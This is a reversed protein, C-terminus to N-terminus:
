HRKSSAYKSVQSIYNDFIYTSDQPGPCGEPHFQVATIPQNKITIGEISGDFLSRHTITIINQDISSEVVEFEHNQSSIAVRKHILDYVPHNIGHHPTKMQRTKAGFSLAILQYGMCIGLVPIRSNLIYGILERHHLFIAEPDGPGNSLVVGDPSFNKIYEVDITPPYVHVACKKQELLKIINNKVGFDILLVTRQTHSKKIFEVTNINHHKTNYGVIYTSKLGKSQKTLSLLDSISDYSDDSAISGKLPGDNRIHYVLSRTDVGVIVPIKHILLWEQLSSKRLYHDGQDEISSLVIAKLKPFSSEYDIDNIGTIGIHPFTFVLIQGTYSPDTIAEQYGTQATLFCLEGTIPTQSSLCYGKFYVGNELVIKAKYQM